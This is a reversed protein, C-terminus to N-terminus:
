MMIPLYRVFANLPKFEQNDPDFANVNCLMSLKTYPLQPSVTIPHTIDGQLNM